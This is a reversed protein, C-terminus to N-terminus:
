AKKSVKKNQEHENGALTWTIYQDLTITSELAWPKGLCNEPKWTCWHIYECQHQECEKDGKM